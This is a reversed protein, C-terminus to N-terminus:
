ETEVSNDSVTAADVEIIEVISELYEYVKKSLLYEKYISEGGIAELYEESKEYGYQAADTKASEKMEDDTVKLGEKKAIAKMVLNEKSSAIAVDNAEKEFQEETMKMNNKIFEALEVGSEKAYGEANEYVSNKLNEVMSKPPEKVECIAYVAEWIAKTQNSKNKSDAQKELYAKVDQQYEDMTTFDLNAKKSLMSIFADNFEPTKATSADYIGNIKVEFVVAKGALEANGTYDEPFTLDLSVDEGVNKGILGEEFGEIFSNSGINLNHGTGTGGDFAEGDLLGKYDINVLDGEKVDTRDTIADYDYLNAYEVYSNLETDMEAQVLEDTIKTVPVEVQMGEYEGLKVYKNPNVDSGDKSGCGMLGIMGTLVFVTFIKKKM